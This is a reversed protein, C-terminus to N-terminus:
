ATELKEARAKIVRELTVSYRGVIAAPVHVEVVITADNDDGVYGAWDFSGRMYGEVVQSVAEQANEACDIWRGHLTLEDTRRKVFPSRFQEDEEHAASWNIEVM